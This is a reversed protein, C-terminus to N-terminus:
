GAMLPTPRTSAAQAAPTFTAAYGAPTQWGLRSHPRDTNYDRRWAELALRADPLSRFLTENLLEDRLGRQKGRAESLRRCDIGWGGARAPDCRDTRGFVELAEDTRDKRLGSEM